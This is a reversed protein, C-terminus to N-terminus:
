SPADEALIKEAADFLDRAVSWPVAETSEVYPDVATKAPTSEILIGRVGARNAAVIDSWMNGILFSQRLDISLDEAAKYIMGPRPKRCDCIARWGEVLAEPHHFCYYWATICVKEIELLATIRQEIAEIDRPTAIGRAVASQNSVVVLEFGASALKSLAAGAGPLVRVAEPDSLYELDEILTGDRDLFVARAVNAGGAKRVLFANGQERE